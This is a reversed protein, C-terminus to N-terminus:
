FTPPLRLLYAHLRDMAERSPWLLDTGGPYGLRQEPWPDYPPPPALADRREASVVHAESRIPAFRIPEQYLAVPDFSVRV